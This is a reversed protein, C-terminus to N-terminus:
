IFVFIVLIIMSNSILIDSKSMTKIMLLVVPTLSSQEGCIAETLKYKWVKQLLRLMSIHFQIM